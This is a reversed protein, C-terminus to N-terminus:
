QEQKCRIQRAGEDRVMRRRATMVGTAAHATLTAMPARSVESVCGHPRSGAGHVTRMTHQCACTFSEDEAHECRTRSVVDKMRSEIQNVSMDSEDTEIQGHETCQKERLKVREDNDAADEKEDDADDTEKAGNRQRLLQRGHNGKELRIGCQPICAVNSLADAL